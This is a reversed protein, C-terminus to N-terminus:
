IEEDAMLMKYEVLKSIYENYKEYYSNINENLEPIELEYKNM